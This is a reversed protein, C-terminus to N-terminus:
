MSRGILSTLSSWGLLVFLYSSRVKLPDHFGGKQRRMSLLHGWNTTVQWRDQEGEEQTSCAEMIWRQQEDCSRSVRNLRVEDGSVTLEDEKKRKRKGRNKGTKRNEEV